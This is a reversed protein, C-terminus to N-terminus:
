SVGGSTNVMSDPLARRDEDLFAEALARHFGSRKTPDTALARERRAIRERISEADEYYRRSRSM